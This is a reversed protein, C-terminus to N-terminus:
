LILLATVVARAPQGHDHAVRQTQQGQLLELAGGRQDARHFLESPISENLTILREALLRKGDAKPDAVPHRRARGLFTVM